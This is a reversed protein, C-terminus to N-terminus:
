DRIRIASITPLVLARQLVPPFSESFPSDKAAILHQSPAGRLSHRIARSQGPNQPPRPRGADGWISWKKSPLRPQPNGFNRTFNLGVPPPRFGVPHPRFHHRFRSNKAAILTRFPSGILSHHIARAGGSKSPSVPFGM